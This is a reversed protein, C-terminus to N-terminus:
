KQQSDCPPPRLPKILGVDCPNPREDLMDSLQAPPLIHRQLRWAYETKGPISCQGPAPSAVPPDSSAVQRELHAGPRLGSWDAALSATKTKKAGSRNGHPDEKPILPQASTSQVRRHRSILAAHSVRPQDEDHPTHRIHLIEGVPETQVRIRIDAPPLDVKESTLKPTLGKKVVQIIRVKKGHTPHLLGPSCSFLLPRLRKEGARTKGNGDEIRYEFRWHLKLPSQQSNSYTPNPLSSGFSEVGSVSYVGNAKIALSAQRSIYDRTDDGVLTLKRLVPQPDLTGHHFVFSQTEAPCFEASGDTLAHVLDTNDASPPTSYGSLEFVPRALRFGEQDIWLELRVNQLWSLVPPLGPVTLNLEGFSGVPPLQAETIIGASVSPSAASGAAFVITSLSAGISPSRRYSHTEPLNLTDSSHSPTTWTSTSSSSRPSGPPSCTDSVKKKPSFYASLAFRSAGTSQHHEYHGREALPSLYQSSNTPTIYSLERGTSVSFRQSCLTLDEAGRADLVQHRQGFTGM